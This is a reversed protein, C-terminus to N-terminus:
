APKRPQEFALPEAVLRVIKNGRYGATCKCRPAIKGAEHLHRDAPLVVDAEDIRRDAFGDLVDASQTGQDDIKVRDVGIEVRCRRDVVLLRLRMRSARAIERRQAPWGAASARPITKHCQQFTSRCPTNALRTDAIQRRPRPDSVTRRATRPRVCQSM